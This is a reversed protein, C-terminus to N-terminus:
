FRIGLARVMTFLDCCTVNFQHCVDPIKIKTSNSGAAKEGTVIIVDRGMAYAILWGDAGQAFRAKEAPQYRGHQEIWNVIVRYNSICSPDATSMFWRRFRNTAWNELEDKRGTLEDMVRDISVLSGGQAHMLLQAWFSPAIDFAYPGQAADILVSSDLVYVSM